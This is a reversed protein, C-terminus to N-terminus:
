VSRQAVRLDWCRRGGRFIGRRDSLCSDRRDASPLLAGLYGELVAPLRERTEYFAGARQVERAAAVDHPDTYVISRVCAGLTTALYVLHLGNFAGLRLNAVVLALPATM